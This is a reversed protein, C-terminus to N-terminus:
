LCSKEPNKLLLSPYLPPIGYHNRVETLPLDVVEWFNWHDSLDVNCASGRQLAHIVLPIDFLGIHADAVPTIKIGWHFHLIVFLLFVFGDKRVFGAQFAGQQIEGQPNTDYGSLVHGFDHFVVRESIAGAEGPFHFQRQTCHKWFAYGLTDQPLIRLQHFREALAADEGGKQFFLPGIFKKVGVWGAEHYVPALLNSMLRRTLEIRALLPHGSAAALLVRLGPEKVALAQAIARLTQQQHRTTKFDVMAMVIALQLLRKRHHPHVIHRDIQSPMVSSEDILEANGQHLAVIAQLFQQERQTLSAPNAAVTILLRRVWPLEQPSFITIDM